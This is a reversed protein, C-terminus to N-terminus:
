LNCPNKAAFIYAFETECMEAILFGCARLSDATQAPTDPYVRLKNIGIDIFPKQTKDISLVFRGNPTLLSKVKCFAAAKDNIHMFTLSSYIVDFTQGFEHILFDNCILSVNPFAALNSRARTVTKPSIDIGVLHACLPATRVALRGTGVGIELVSDQSSLSLLEAFAPGDWKDMYDRLPQPDHVPDNDLDILLDYHRAIDNM